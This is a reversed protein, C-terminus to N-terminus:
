VKLKEIEEESYGYRELSRVFVRYGFTNSRSEILKGIGDALKNFGDTKFQVKDAKDFARLKFKLLDEWFKVSQAENLSEIYYDLMKTVSIALFIM